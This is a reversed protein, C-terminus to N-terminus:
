EYKIIASFGANKLKEVAKEANEASSYAGTQVRYLKKGDPMAIHAKVVDFIYGINELIDKESQCSADEDNQSKDGVDNATQIKELSAFEALTKGITNGILQTNQKIWQAKQPNSHFDVEIYARTGTPTNLEILSDYAKARRKVGTISSVSELLAEALKKGSKDTSYYFTETGTVTTDRFANTHIAVYIDTNQANAYNARNKVNDSQAAVYVNCVYNDDLYKKAANAILTCQECENTDGYAGVNATQNSPSLFIKTM